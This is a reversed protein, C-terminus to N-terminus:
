GGRYVVRHGGHRSELGRVSVAGTRGPAYAVAREGPGFDFDIIDITPIGAENLPLHDDLVTPGQVLPFMDGYGLEQALAYVRRVVDPALCASNGEVPFVPNADAIMDLLVGYRPRYGPEIPNAAFHKAGLYMDSEGPLYDEGDVLLIDVGVPPAQRALLDALHLLVAM